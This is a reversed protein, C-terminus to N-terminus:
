QRLSPSPSRPARDPAPTRGRGPPQVRPRRVLIGLGGWADLVARAVEAAGAATSLDAAVYRVGDIPMAPAARATAIVDFGVARLGQVVAAGAGKTGGTVLARRGALQLDFSM